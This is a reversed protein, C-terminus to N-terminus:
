VFHTTRLVPHTGLAGRTQTTRARSRFRPWLAHAHDSPWGADVCFARERARCARVLTSAVFADDRERRAPADGAGRAGGFFGARHAESGAATSEEARSRAAATAEATAEAATGRGERADPGGRARRARVASTRSRPRATAGNGDRGKRRRANNKGVAGELATRVSESSPIQRAVAEGRRSRVRGVAGIVNGGRGCDVGVVARVSRTRARPGLRGAVRVM